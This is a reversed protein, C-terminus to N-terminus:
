SSLPCALNVQLRRGAISRGHTATIASRAAEVSSMEVCGFGRSLGSRRDQAIRASTVDGHQAFLAHLDESSLSFALNGVLISAAM